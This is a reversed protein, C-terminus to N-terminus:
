GLGRMMQDAIAAAQRGGRNNFLHSYVKLTTAPSGHGLQYAVDVVNMGHAILASARTHRLAHFSIPPLSRFDRIANGWDRSLTDPALARGLPDAFVLDEETLRGLGFMVRHALMRSKHEAIVAALAEGIEIVRRGARTKPPKFRLGTATEELSREVRWLRETLDVDRWRSALIEGRRMGTALATAVIPYLRRKTPNSAARLRQLLEGIQPATLVDVPNDPVPPPSV